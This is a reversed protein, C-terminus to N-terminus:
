PTTQDKIDGIWSVRSDLFITATRLAQEKVFGNANNYGDSNLRGDFYNLAELETGYSNSTAGGVTEDIAM